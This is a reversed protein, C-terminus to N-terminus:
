PWLSAPVLGLGVFPPVDVPDSGSATVVPVYEPGRLVFAEVARARLDVIWFYPVGYRACLQRKTGRDTVATSPSLIEVVLTPPGEVGRRHLAPRRERDLYVIDPQLITTDALIVDLPAHLVIGLQRSEVHLHLHTVLRVSVIQHDSTPTATVYLEGDHIEYRKGDNPLAEYDRYTLAIRATM